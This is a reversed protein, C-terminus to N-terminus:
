KQAKQPAVLPSNDRPKCPLLSALAFAVLLFGDQACSVSSESRRRNCREFAMSSGFLSTHMDSELSMSYAVPLPQKTGEEPDCRSLSHEEETCSPELVTCALAATSVRYLYVRNVRLNFALTVRAENCKVADQKDGYWCALTIM